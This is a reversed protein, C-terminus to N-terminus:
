SNGLPKLSLPQNVPKKSAFSAMKEKERPVM